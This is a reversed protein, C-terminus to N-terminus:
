RQKMFEIFTKALHPDFHKGAMVEIKKLAAEKDLPGWDFESSVTTTAWDYWDVIAVIRALYPIQEGKLGDPYGKGDWREHHSRAIPVYADFHELTALLLSGVVTHDSEHDELVRLRTPTYLMLQELGVRGIDHLMTADQLFERVSESLGLFKAFEVVLDTVRQSHSMGNEDEVEMMVILSKLLNGVLKKFREVHVFIEWFHKGNVLVEYAARLLGLDSMTMELDQTILRWGNETKVLLPRGISASDGQTKLVVLDASEADTCFEDTESVFRDLDEREVGELFIKM